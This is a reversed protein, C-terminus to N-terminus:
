VLLVTTLWRRRSQEQGVGKTRRPLHSIRFELEVKLRGFRSRVFCHSGSLGSLGSTDPGELGIVTASVTRYKPGFARDRFTFSRAFEKCKVSGGICAQNPRLASLPAFLKTSPTSRATASICVAIHDSLIPQFQGTFQGTSGSSHPQCRSDAPVVAPVISSPVTPIKM